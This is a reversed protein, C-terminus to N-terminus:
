NHTGGAQSKYKKPNSHHDKVWQAVIGISIRKLEDITLSNNSLVEDSLAIAESIGVLLERKDRNDFDQVTLPADDRARRKLHEFRIKTSAHISLLRVSGVTKLIEVESLSRIGDVVFNTTKFTTKIREIEGKILYAIAGPGMDSRMKVMLNGLNTDTLEIHSRKAEHRVVDGMTVLSFGYEKLFKAVTSKGSGPMGTLCVILILEVNESSHNRGELKVVKKHRKGYREAMDTVYLVTPKLFRNFIREKLYLVANVSQSRNTVM